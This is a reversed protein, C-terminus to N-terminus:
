ELVEAKYIMHSNDVRIMPWTSQNYYLKTRKGSEVSKNIEAIVAEINEGHRAEPDVSFKFTENVLTPDKGGTSVVGGLLLEGEWSKIFVGKQSFKRVYGVRFGESYNSSCGTVALAMLLLLAYKM